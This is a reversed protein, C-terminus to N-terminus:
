ICLSTCGRALDPVILFLSCYSRVCYHDRVIVPILLFFLVIALGYPALQFVLLYTWLYSNLVSIIIILTIPLAFASLVSPRTSLAIHM